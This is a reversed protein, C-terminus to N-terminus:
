SEITVTTSGSLVNSKWTELESIRNQLNQILEVFSEFTENLVKNQVPNTSTDSLESDVTIKTAGDEISDLKAKDTSSMLGNESTTANSYTTDTSSITLYENSATSAINFTINDGSELYLSRMKGPNYDVLKANDVYIDLYSTTLTDVKKDVVLLDDEVMTIQSDLYSQILDDYHSLGDIDIVKKEDAM